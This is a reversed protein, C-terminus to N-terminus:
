VKLDESHVSCHQPTIRFKYFRRNAHTPQPESESMFPMNYRIKFEQLRGTCGVDPIRVLWSKHQICDSFYKALCMLRNEGHKADHPCGKLYKQFPSFLKVRLAHRDDQQIHQPLTGLDNFGNNILERTAFSCGALCLVTFLKLKEEAAFIDQALSRDDKDSARRTQETCVGECHCRLIELIRGPSLAGKKGVLQSADDLAFVEVRRLTDLTPLLNEDSQNEEDGNKKIAHKRIAEAAQKSLCKRGAALKTFFDM